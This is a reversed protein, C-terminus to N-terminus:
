MLRSIVVGSLLGMCVGKRRVVEAAFHALLRILSDNLTGLSDVLATEDATQVSQKRNDSVFFFIRM